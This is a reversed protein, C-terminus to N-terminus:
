SRENRESDASRALARCLQDNVRLQAQVFAALGTGFNGKEIAHVLEGDRAVVDFSAASADIIEDIKDGALGFGTEDMGAAM